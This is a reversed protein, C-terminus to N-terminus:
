HRWNCRKELFMLIQKVTEDYLENNSHEILQLVRAKILEREKQAGECYAEDLQRRYTITENFPTQPEIGYSMSDDFFKNIKGFISMNYVVRGLVVAGPIM